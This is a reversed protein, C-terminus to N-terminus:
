RCPSATRHRSAWDRLDDASLACVSSRAGLPMQVRRRDDGGDGAARSARVIESSLRANVVTRGDATGQVPETIQISLDLDTGTVTLEDGKLDLKVGSLVPLAGTRGTAARGATGLAEALVDRECQFKV